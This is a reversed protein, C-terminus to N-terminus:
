RQENTSKPANARPHPASAVSVRPRGDAHSPGSAPAWAHLEELSDPPRPPGDQIWAVLAELDGDGLDALLELEAAGDDDDPTM